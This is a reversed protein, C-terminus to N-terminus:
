SKKFPSWGTLHDHQQEVHPTERKLFDAVAQHFSPDSLRHASWTYEPLFGRAIKHEGQAGPEFHKIGERICYDIGQYYCAEFHLSDLQQSCGWYRGYLTDNSSYMVSCAVREGNHTAFVVHSNDPLAAGLQAFFDASLSPTGWKREYIGAYFAHVQAWDDATLDRGNLWQLDIGQQQVNRRERKINKRKRSNLSALFDDFCSYNHNHWHYQVGTRQLLQGDSCLADNQEKPAFLWHEGSLQHQEVVADAARRLLALCADADQDEAILARPGTAPTYPAAVILKPYYRLGHQEYAEAWAWDFVFEGYSNTKIYAPAAAILTKNHDHVCLYQPYWGHAEGLCDCQELARLFAYCVFPNASPNLADWETADISDLSPLVTATLKDSGSVPRAKPWRTWIANLM